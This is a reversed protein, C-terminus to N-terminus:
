CVPPSINPVLNAIRGRLIDGKKYVITKGDAKYYNRSVSIEPYFITNNLGNYYGWMDQAFSYKPPLSHRVDYGFRHIERIQGSCVSLSDLRLRLNYQDEPEDPNSFYSEHFVVEKFPASDGTRFLSM